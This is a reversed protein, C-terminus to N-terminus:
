DIIKKNILNTIAISVFFAITAGIILITWEYFYIPVVHLFNNFPSYIIIIQLIISLLISSILWKNDFFKLKEQFRIVGIRVFEYIIFGTFLSTRAVDFGKPLILYFTTLLFITKIIGITGIIWKLKRNIIPENKKRPKEKLIDKRAPDAGLAIAPAGDTILNIWLLQIPLLIPEKFSFILLSIFIVLVEALNSVLLYNVFKKINDFIRRGEKVSSIITKFNDDLLIIDSAQKTVESGRIGMSIGVDAKKVALSDNVGDGTMAVRYGKKKLLDLIRMKDEPSVRAFVRINKLYKILEPDKMNKLDDGTLVKKSKLGIQEAIAQATKPNDGTLMIVEIGANKAEVLANKVEERPPDIMAEMGIWILNKESIKEQSTKNLVSSSLPKFAFGLVRLAQSSLIDNKNLIVKKEDSSLNKIKGNIIVKNCKELIIEPAGKSYITFKNQSKILVSMMKRESDFPNERMRKQKKEIEEKTFGLKDSLKRIAIETQDGIYSEKKQSDFGIKANNCLAGCLLMQELSNKEKSTPIALSKTQIEKDDIYIKTIQMENKTLTGTKDTCIIDISGISETVSLKRILAKKAAMNKAGIALTLTIVAPLGEPIAAVALSISLLLINLPSFKSLGILFMIIILSVIMMSLKKSLTNIEKQFLTKKDKIQQLKEALKGVRTSMGTSTIKAIANGSYVFTNGFLSDKDKKSVQESEGTLISEDVKLSESKLISCDAPIIDGSELIIIDEPVLQKTDIKLKKGDRIVISYTSSMKKLAEITKEAKYDQIFGVFTSLTVILLILITDSIGGEEGSTLGVILSIVAAAILIWILPSNLQSIFIKLLSAKKKEKIENLGFKKLKESATKTSLGKTNSVM